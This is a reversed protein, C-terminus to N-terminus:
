QKMRLLTWYADEANNFSTGQAESEKSVSGNSDAKYLVAFQVSGTGFNGYNYLGVFEDCSDSACATSLAYYDAGFNQSDFGSTQPTM